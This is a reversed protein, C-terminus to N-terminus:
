LVSTTNIEDMTDSKHIHLMSLGCLRSESMSSRIWTKLRGLAVLSRECCCSGVTLCLLLQMIRSINPYFDSIYRLSTCSEPLCNNFKTIHDIFPNLRIIRFDRRHNRSDRKNYTETTRIYASKTVTIENEAPRSLHRGVPLNMVTKVLIM